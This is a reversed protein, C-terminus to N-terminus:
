EKMFPSLGWGARPKINTRYRCQIGRITYSWTANIILYQTGSTTAFGISPPHQQYLLAAGGDRSHMEFRRSCGLVVCHELKVMPWCLTEKCRGMSEGRGANEEGLMSDISSREQIAYPRRQRSRRCSKFAGVSWIEKGFWRASVYEIAM